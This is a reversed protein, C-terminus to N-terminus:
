LKKFKIGNQDLVAYNGYLAAGISWIESKVYPFSLKFQSHNHGIIFAAYDEEVPFEDIFARETYNKEVFDWFDKPKSHVLKLKDKNPLIIDIENNLYPKINWIQMYDLMLLQGCCAHDHNGKIFLVEDKKGLIWNAANSNNKPNRFCLTDGLCFWKEIEPHKAIIQDLKDVEGHCDGFFALNFSKAEYLM